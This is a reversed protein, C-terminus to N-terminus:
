GAADAAPAQSTAGEGEEKTRRKAIAVQRQLMFAQTFWFAGVLFSAAAGYLQLSNLDPTYRYIAAGSLGALAAVAFKGWAARQWRRRISANLAQRSTSIALERMKRLDSSLEPPTRYPRFDDLSFPKPKEEMAAAESLVREEAPPTEIPAPEPRRPAIYNAAPADAESTGRLRGMLRSMYSEISEDECGVVVSAGLPVHELEDDNRGDSADHGSDHHPGGFDAADGGGGCDVQHGLRALIEQLSAERPPAADTTTVDPAPVESSAESEDAPAECPTEFALSDADRENGEALQARAEALEGRCADLEASRDALEACRRKVEQQDRQIEDQERELKAREQELESRLRHYADERAALEGQQGALRSERETLDAALTHQEVERSDMDGARRALEAQQAEVDRRSEALEAQRTEVDRQAEALEAQATQLSEERAELSAQLTALRTRNLALEQWSEKLRDEEGALRTAQEDLAVARADLARRQAALEEARVTEAKALKERLLQAAQEASLRAEDLRRRATEDELRRWRLQRVEQALRATRERALRRADRRLRVAADLRPAWDAYVAARHAAAAAGPDSGSDPAWDAPESRATLGLDDIRLELPGIALVDGVALRAEAADRGNVRVTGGLRRVITAGPGRLAQCHRPAVGREKLWLGCTEASGITVNAGTIQLTRWTSPTDSTAPAAHRVAVTM